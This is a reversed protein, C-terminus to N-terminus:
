SGGLKESLEAKANKISHEEFNINRYEAQKFDRNM